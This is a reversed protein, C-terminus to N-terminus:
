EDNCDDARDGHECAGSARAVREFCQESDAHGDKEAADDRGKRAAGGCVEAIVVRTVFGLSGRNVRGESAFRLEQVM